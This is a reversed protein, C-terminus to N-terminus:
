ELARFPEVDKNIGSNATGNMIARYWMRSGEWFRGYPTGRIDKAASSM